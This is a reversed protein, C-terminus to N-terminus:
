EMNFKFVNYTLIFDTLKSIIEKVPHSSDDLSQGTAAISDVHIASTYANEVGTNLSPTFDHWLCPYGCRQLPIWWSEWMSIHSSPGSGLAITAGSCPKLWTVSGKTSLSLVVRTTLVLTENLIKSETHASVRTESRLACKELFLYCKYLFGYLSNMM